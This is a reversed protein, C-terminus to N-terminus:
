EFTLYAFVLNHSSSLLAASEIHAMKKPHPPTFPDYSNLEEIIIEVYGKAIASGRIPFWHQITYYQILCSNLYRKLRYKRIVIDIYRHSVWYSSLGNIVLENDYSMRSHMLCLSAFLEVKNKNHQKLGTQLARMEPMYNVHNLTPFNSGYEMKIVSIHTFHCYIVTNRCNWIPM